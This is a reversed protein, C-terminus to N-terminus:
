GFVQPCLFLPIGGATVLVGGAYAGASDAPKDEAMMFESMIGSTGSGVVVLAGMPGIAFLDLSRLLSRIWQILAQLQYIRAQIGEIFAIIRDILGQLMDLIGLLFKEIQDLIEDAGALANPM